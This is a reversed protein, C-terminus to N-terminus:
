FGFNIIINVKNESGKMGQKKRIFRGSKSLVAGNKDASSEGGCMVRYQYAFLETERLLNGAERRKSEEFEIEMEYDREGLYTNTDFMLRVGESIEYIIRDTHLSGLFILRREGLMFSEPVGETKLPIEVNGERESRGHIKLTGELVCGEDRVRCTIGAKDLTYDETDYYYNTQSKHRVALGTGNLKLCSQIYDSEGKKLMYKYENEKM